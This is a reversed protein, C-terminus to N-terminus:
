CHSEPELGIFEVVKASLVFLGAVVTVCTAGFVLADWLGELHFQWGLQLEESDSLGVGSFPPFVRSRAFDVSASSQFPRFRRGYGRPVVRLSADSKPM